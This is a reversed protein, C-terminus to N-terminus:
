VLVAAKTHCSYDIYNTPTAKSNFRMMSVLLILARRLFWGLVYSCGLATYAM